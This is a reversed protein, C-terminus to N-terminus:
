FPIASADERTAPVACISNHMRTRAPRLCCTSSKRAQFRLLAPLLPAVAAVVVAALAGASVVAVVVAAVQAAEAVRRRLLKPRRLRLRTEVAPLFNHQQAPKVQAPPQLRRLAPLAPAVADVVQAVEDEAQAVPLQARAVEDEQAVLLEAAEDEAAPLEEARAVRMILPSTSRRVDM